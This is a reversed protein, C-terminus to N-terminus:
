RLCRAVQAGSGSASLVDRVAEAVARRIGDPLSAACIFPLGQSATTWGVVRLRATLSPDHRRALALSRCDIAAVDAGGDAVLRMSALHSGTQVTRSFIAMSEGVARLDRELALYGSRSDPGNFAFRRGALGALLASSLADNGSAAPVADVDDPRRLAILASRYLTGEGGTLGDYRTQAVVHVFPKLGRDLPGWCTEGFLLAPHRWLTPLDLGDPPLMAPDPAIVAGSGDRIGGPVAPLDANRRALREPAAIGRQRLADGVRGWVTDVAEREEPLDYMPMAAVWTM